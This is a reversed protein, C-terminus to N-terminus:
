GVLSLKKDFSAIWAGLTIDEVPINEFAKFLHFNFVSRYIVVADPKLAEPCTDIFLECCDRVTVSGTRCKRQQWYARFEIGNAITNRLAPIFVRAASLKLDPFHGL